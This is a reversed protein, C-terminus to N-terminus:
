SERVPQLVFELVTHTTIDILRAFPQGFLNLVDYAIIAHFRFQYVSKHRMEIADVLKGVNNSVEFLYLRGIAIRSNRSNRNLIYLVLFYGIVVIRVLAREPLNEMSM